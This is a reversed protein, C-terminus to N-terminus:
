LKLNELNYFIYQALKLYGKENMHLGDNPQYKSINKECFENYAFADILLLEKEQAITRVKKAANEVREYYGFNSYGKDRTAYPPTILIIKSNQNQERCYEIIKVYDRNAKTDEVPSMGGNTGLMILVLDASILAAKMSENDETCMAEYFRTSTYGCKGFNAVESNTLLSLFYPYNEAKVNKIGSKGKIGYDGETLSDGICVIRGLQKKMM